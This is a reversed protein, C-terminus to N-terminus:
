KTNKIKIKIKSPPKVALKPMVIKLVGKDYTAETAKEKVETPLRVIREFSSKKIEKKWYNRKKEEKEEDAKGSVKLIGNEVSIDIKEPDFDPINLEAVVEKDTEYLNMAPMALNKSSFVPLFWDDDEFFKELDFPQKWPILSM